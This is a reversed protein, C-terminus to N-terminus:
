PTTRRQRLYTRLAADDLQKAEKQAIAQEHLREDRERLKELVKVERDAEILVQRRRQVEQMVQAIQLETAAIQSKMLLQYRRANLLKEVSVSGAGSGERTHNQAAMVERQFEAVRDRLIREAEYAQALDRHREDRTQERLKLM